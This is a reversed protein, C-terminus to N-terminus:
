LFSKSPLRCSAQVDPGIGAQSVTHLISHSYAHVLRFLCLCPLTLHLKSASRAPAATDAAAPAAATAAAPAAKSPQQVEEVPKWEGTLASFGPQSSSKKIM